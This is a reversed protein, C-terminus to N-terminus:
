TERKGKRARHVKLLLEAAGDHGEIIADRMKNAITQESQDRLIWALEDVMWHLDFEETESHKSQPFPKVIQDRHIGLAKAVADYFREPGKGTQEYGALTQASYGCKQALAEQTLAQAERWARLSQKTAELFKKLKTNRV